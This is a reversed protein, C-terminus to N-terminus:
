QAVQYHLYRIKPDPCKRLVLVRSAGRKIWQEVETHFRLCSQKEKDFLTDGVGSSNIQFALQKHHEIFKWANVKHAFRFELQHSVRDSTAIYHM